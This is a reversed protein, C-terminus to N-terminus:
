GWTNLIRYKGSYISKTELPMSLKDEAVVDGRNEYLFAVHAKIATKIDEPVAAANVYGAKFDVKVPYVANTDATIGNEFILRPYGNTEKLKYDTFAAYAGDTFIEVADISQLPARRVTIFPYLELKSSCLADFYGEYTREIFVRNCYKEGFLTVSNILTTILTDDATHRVRCWAKAEALSVPDGSAPSTIDYRDTM